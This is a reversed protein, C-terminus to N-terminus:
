RQAKSVRQRIEEIQASAIRLYRPQLRGLASLEAEADNMYKPGDTKRPTGILAQGYDRLCGAVPLSPRPQTNLLVRMGRDFHSQAAENCSTKFHVEGLHQGSHSERAAVLAFATLWM